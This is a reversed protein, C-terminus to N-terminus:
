NTATEVWLLGAWSIPGASDTPYVFGCGVAASFMPSYLFRFSLSLSFFFPSPALTKADSIAAMSAAADLEPSPSSEPRLCYYYAAAAAGLRRGRYRLHRGSARRELREDVTLIGLRGVM